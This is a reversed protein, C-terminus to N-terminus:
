VSTTSASRDLYKSVAEYQGRTHVVAAQKHGQAGSAVRSDMAKARPPVPHLGSQHRDPTLLMASHRHLQLKRSAAECSCHRSAVRCLTATRGCITSASALILLNTSSLTREVLV